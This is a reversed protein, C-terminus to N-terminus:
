CQPTLCSGDSSGSTCGEAYRSRSLRPVTVAKVALPTPQLRM